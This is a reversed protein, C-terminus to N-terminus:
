PLKSNQGGKLIIHFNGKIDKGIESKIYFKLKVKKKKYVSLKCLCKVCSSLSTNSRLCSFLYNSFV